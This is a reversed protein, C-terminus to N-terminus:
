KREEAPPGSNASQAEAGSKAIEGNKQSPNAALNSHDNPQGPQPMAVSEVKKSLDSTNPAVATTGVTEGAPQAPATGIVVASPSAEAAKPAKGTNTNSIRDGCATLGAIVFSLALVRAAAASWLKHNM